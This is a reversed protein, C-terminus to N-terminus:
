ILTYAVGMWRYRKSSFPRSAAWLAVSELVPAKRVALLVGLAVTGAGLVVLGLGGVTLVRLASIV